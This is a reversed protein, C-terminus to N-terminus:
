LLGIKKFHETLEPDKILIEKVMLEMNRVKEIFCDMDKPAKRDRIVNYFIGGIIAGLMAILLNQIFEFRKNMDERLLRIQELVLNQDVYIAQPLTTQPLSKVAPDTAWSYGFLLLTMLFFSILVAKVHKM